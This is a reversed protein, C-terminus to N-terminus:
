TALGLRKVHYDFTDRALDPPAHYLAVQAGLGTALAFLVRAEAQPDVDSSVQQARQARAIVQACMALIEQDGTTLLEHIRAQNQTRAAFALNVRVADRVQEDQGVLLALLALVVERPSGAAAAVQEELRQEILQYSHEVAAYLLDDKTAFWHQVQGMSIGAQAAVSRLSVVDLGRGAVLQWAAAAIRARHARADVTRPVGGGYRHSRM